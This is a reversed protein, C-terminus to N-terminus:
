PPTTSTAWASTQTSGIPPWTRTRESTPLGSSRDPFPTVPSQTAIFRVARILFARHEGEVEVVDAPAATMQDATYRDIDCNAKDGILYDYVRSALTARAVGVLTNPDASDWPM